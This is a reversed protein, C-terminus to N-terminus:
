SRCALTYAERAFGALHSALQGRIAPDISVLEAHTATTSVSLWQGRAKDRFGHWQCLREPSGGAIFALLPLAPPLRELPTANGTPAILCLGAIRTRVALEWALPATDGAAVIVFPGWGRAKLDGLWAVVRDAEAGEAYEDSLGHGPLDLAIRRAETLPLSALLPVMADLDAGHDHLLVVTFLGEGPEIVAALSGGPVEM